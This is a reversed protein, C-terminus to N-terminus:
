TVELRFGFEPIIIQNRGQKLSNVFSRVLIEVGYSMDSEGEPLSVPFNGIAALSMKAEATVSKINRQCLQYVEHDIIPRLPEMLDDVLRFPNNKNSHYLGMGPFLGAAM